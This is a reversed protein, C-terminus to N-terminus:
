RAPRPAPPPAQPTRAPKAPKAPRPRLWRSAQLQRALSAEIPWPEDHLWAALLEGCLVSLTLGRAGLGTLLQLPQAPQPCPQTGPQTGPPAHPQGTSAAAGHAGYYIACLDQAVQSSPPKQGAHPAAWPGVAPLRDPLTARVAAWARARGDAWQAQLADHAPPLLEALRQRNHAHDQPLLHPLAAEREFTSGTIWWALAPGSAAPPPTPQHPAPAATAASLDASLDAPLDAPRETPQPAPREACPDAPLGAPLDAFPLPPLHAILSGHGNVPFPPLAAAAQANGPMPGFAVQGRLPHLPLTPASPVPTAPAAASRTAPMASPAAFPAASPMAAAADAPLDTPLNAPTATSAPLLALSDFGAAIVLLDAEALLQGQAGHLRWAGGTAAPPQVRAVECQGRWTIGPAQLLARVLAAPRLWGAQAHWLALTQATIPLGARAAQQRTLPTSAPATGASAPPIAAPASGPSAAPTAWALDDLWSAPLRREGPAHRELVGTIAYGQGAQLLQRAACFTARVGARSLRSLPRDDPSVHPAVVGAPLGSAGAAPRAARDLVQVQWGRQALAHAAAAGALGGGIIACRGPAPKGAEGAGPRQGHAQPQGPCAVPANAPMNAPHAHLPPQTASLSPPSVSPQAPWAVHPQGSPPALPRAPSQSPSQNSSQGLSQAQSAGPWEAPLKDPAKGAAARAARVPAPIALPTGAGDAPQLPAPHLAAAAAHPTAYHTTHRATHHAAHATCAAHAQGPQGALQQAGNAQHPSHRPAALCARLAPSSPPGALCAFGSAALAARMPASAKDAAMVALAGPRLLRACAPLLRADADAAAATDTPAHASLWLSDYRGGLEALMPLADGVALSLHVHAGALRLRHLGPLLGHWHTALEAALPALEPWAAAWQQWQRSTDAGPRHRVLATHFLRAPRAPCQRWAHWLALFNLGQGWDTELVRWHPAGAWAPAAPKGPGAPAHGPACAASGGPLGSGSLFIHRALALADPATM